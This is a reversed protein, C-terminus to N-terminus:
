ARHVGVEDVFAGYTQYTHNTGDDQVILHGDLVIDPVLQRIAPLADSLTQDPYPGRGPFGDVVGAGLQSRM